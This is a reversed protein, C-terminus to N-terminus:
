LDAVRELKPVKLFFNQQKHKIFILTTGFRQTNCHKETKYLESAQHKQKNGASALFSVNRRKEKETRM